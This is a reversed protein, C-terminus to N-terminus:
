RRNERAYLDTIPARRSDRAVMWQKRWAEFNKWFEPGNWHNETAAGSTPRFGESDLSLLSDRLAPQDVRAAFDLLSTCGKEPGFDRIWHLLAKRAGRRDGTKCSSQVAALQGSETGSETRSAAGRDDPGRNRKRLTLAGALTLLWLAAFLLTL